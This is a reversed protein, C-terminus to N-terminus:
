SCTTSDFVFYNTSFMFVIIDLVNENNSLGNYTPLLVLAFQFYKMFTMDHKVLHVYM